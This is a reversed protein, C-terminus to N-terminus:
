GAAEGLGLGCPHRELDLERDTLGCSAGCVACPNHPFCPAVRLARHKRSGQDAAFCCCRTDHPPLKPPVQSLNFFTKISLKPTPEPM